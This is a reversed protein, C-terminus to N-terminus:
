ALPLIHICKIHFNQVSFKILALAHTLTSHHSQSRIFIRFTDTLYVYKLQISPPFFLNIYKSLGFVFSEWLGLILLVYAM